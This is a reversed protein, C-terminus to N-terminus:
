LESDHIIRLVDASSSAKKLADVIGPKRAMALGINLRDALAAAFLFGRSEIGVLRQARRSQVYKEMQGLALKFGVPDALLTTIDYFSIGPRPFDPVMRVYKKLEQM